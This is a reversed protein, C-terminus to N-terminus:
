GWACFRWTNGLGSSNGVMVPALGSIDHLGSEWAPHHINWELFKLIPCDGLAGMYIICIQKIISLLDQLKRKPIMPFPLLVSVGFGAVANKIKSCKPRGYVKPKLALLRSQNYCIPASLFLLDTGTKENYLSLM